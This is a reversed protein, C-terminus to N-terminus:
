WHIRTAKKKTRRNSNGDGVDHGHRRHRLPGRKRVRAARQSRRQNSGRLIVFSQMEATPSDLTTITASITSVSSPKRVNVALMIANPFNCSTSACRGM